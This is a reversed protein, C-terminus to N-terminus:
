REVGKIQHTQMFEEITSGESWYVDFTKTLLRALDSNEIKMATFQTRSFGNHHMNFVVFRSDVIVMKIPLDAVIRIEEGAQSFYQLRNVFEALDDSEVEYISKNIVGKQLSSMEEENSAPDMAYPPKNFVLISEQASRVLQMVNEYINKTTRLVKVLDLPDENAINNEYINRLAPALSEITNRFQEMEKQFHEIVAEPDVASYKKVSGLVETCMGKQILKSLVDYMQTRNIRATKSLETATYFKKQLLILYVKAEIENLGLRTLDKVLKEM